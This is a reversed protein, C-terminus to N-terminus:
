DQKYAAMKRQFAAVREKLADDQEDDDLFPVSDALDVHESLLEFYNFAKQVYKKLVESNLSHHGGEVMFSKTLSFNTKRYLADFDSKYSFLEDHNGFIGFCCQRVESDAEAHFAEEIKWQVIVQQPVTSDLKPIEISPKLCPNILIRALSDTIGLAYFAGLSSAILMNIHQEKCITHIREKTAAIDTLNFNEAVWHHEPFLEQLKKYTSSNVSGNFGHIYLINM